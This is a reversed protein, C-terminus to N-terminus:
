ALDSDKFFMATQDSLYVVEGSQTFRFAYRIVV